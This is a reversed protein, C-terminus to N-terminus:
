GCDDQAYGTRDGPAPAAELAGSAAAAEIEDLGHADDLTFPGAAERRLASLHAYTGLAIGLDHALSRMYAGASCVVRLRLVSGPTYDLLDLRRIRIQRPPAEVTEGRRAMRHLAEGQLKIASYAPPTQTIEGRFRDLVQELAHADFM